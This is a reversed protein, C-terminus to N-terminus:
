WYSPSAGPLPRAWGPPWPTAWWSPSSFGLLVKSVAAGRQAPPSIAAAALMAVGFYAGHPLGACFRALLLSGYDPVVASALNAGAYFLALAVLLTKRKLRVAAFALVPAGILM